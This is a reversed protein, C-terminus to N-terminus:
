TECDDADSYEIHNDLQGPYLGARKPGQLKHKKAVIQQRTGELQNIAFLLQKDIADLEEYTM